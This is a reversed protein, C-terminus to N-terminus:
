GYKQGRCDRAGNRIRVGSSRWGSTQWCRDYLSCRCASSEGDNNHLLTLTVPTKPELNKAKKNQAQVPQSVAFLILLVILASISNRFTQRM